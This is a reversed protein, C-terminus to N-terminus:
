NEIIIFESRRNLQHEEESCAVGDACRNLLQSEGYGRGTIRSANIGGQTVIYQITSTNRRQSLAANYSDSSRSDTHSRVDIKMNPYERMVTIVKQLEISADNRIFSKDLDFYIPNLDLIKTLDAGVVFPTKPTLYLTKNIQENFGEGTVFSTEDPDYEEKKARIAYGTSCEVEGFDFSGDAGTVQEGLVNNDADVWVVNAGAIIEDNDKDRVTGALSQICKKIPEKTQVFSYIDDGGMGGERNSAFYGVNTTTNIVFTFDDMSSNVPKGVNYGEGFSGDENPELVFIDLGGLGPHGDSAFYFDGNKAVFPFTERGETNIDEGLSEPEGFSDGDVSVKYLDSLGEGGPMDSAFYLTKEDKSLAPHAVNYEDSNFPVEKAKSWKGKERKSYYLKLLNTGKSDQKYKKDTYNNRTFYVTNGDKSFVATSEHYKSNLVSSFADVSGKDQDDGALYLDLFPQNNWDHVMKVPKGGVERNSAFVLSGQYFMPAFDSNASNIPLDSLRYRGSQAEILDLYNREQDFLMGREDASKMAYFREMIRDAAEYQEKSKLSQAYRFLYEAEVADDESSDVYLGYWKAAKPLEANFYYSDGLRKYIDPSQYGRNVVDLYVERSDIYAYDNYEENAKEVRKEQAFVGASSVTLAILVIRLLYKM